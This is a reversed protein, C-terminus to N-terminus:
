SFNFSNVKKLIKELEFGLIKRNRVVFEGGILVDSVVGNFSYILNSIINYRPNLFINDKDILVLDAEKGTEISGVVKEIGLARAGNITASDFIREANMADVNYKIRQLLVGFKMEEFLNLNNNSAVSDTGICLYKLEKAPCIGSALKANSCPNYAIFGKKKNLIEIEAKNLYIGHAGVFRNKLLGLDEFLILPRKGRQKICENVEKETESLHIHIPLNYKEALKSSKVLLEDSCTESSHPTVSPKIKENKLSLIKNIEKEEKEIEADTKDPDFFDFMACGLFCRMKSKKAAKAINETFFYMDNFCTTGTLLMEGMALLSGYYVREENLKAERPWIEEKLWRQLNKDDSVGRFLNMPIHTHCNILGPIVIKNSCDIVEDKKSINNGIELIKDEILIDRNELIERKENQTVIFRCNKLLM